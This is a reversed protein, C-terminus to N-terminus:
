VDVQLERSAHTILECATETVIVDDELKVTGAGALCVSPELCFTMGAELPAAEHDLSPWEFSTALGIGHGIRHPLEHGAAHVIAAAAAAVDACPV